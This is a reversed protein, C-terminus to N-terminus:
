TSRSPKVRGSLKYAFTMSIYDVLQVDSDSCVSGVVTGYFGGIESLLSLFSLPSYKQHIERLALNKM